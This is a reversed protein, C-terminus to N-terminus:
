LCKHDRYASIILMIDDPSGPRPREEFVKLNAVVYTHRLFVQLIWATWATPSCRQKETCRKVAEWRTVVVEDVVLPGLVPLRRSLSVHLNPKM